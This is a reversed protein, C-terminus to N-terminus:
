SVVLLQYASLEVAGDAVSQGMAVGEPEVRDHRAQLRGQQSDLLDPQAAIGDHGDHQPGAGVLLREGDVLGGAAEPRDYAADEVAQAANLLEILVVGDGLALAGVEHALLALVEAVQQEGEGLVHADDEDHNGVADVHHALDTIGLVVLGAADHALLGGIEVGRQGVLQAEILQLRLELIQRQLIQLM